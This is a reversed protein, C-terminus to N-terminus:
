KVHGTPMGSEAYEFSFKIWGVWRRLFFFLYALGELGALSRQGGRDGVTQEEVFQLGLNASTAFCFLAAPAAM